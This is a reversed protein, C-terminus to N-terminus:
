LLYTNFFKYYLLAFEIKNAEIDKEASYIGFKAQEVQNSIINGTSFNVTATNYDIKANELVAILTENKEKLNLMSDYLSILADELDAEGDEIARSQANIENNFKIKDASSADSAYKSRNVTATTFLNRSIEINLDTEQAEKIYNNLNIEYLKSFDKELNVEVSKSSGDSINLLTDLARQQESVSSELNTLNVQNSKLNNQAKELEDKSSLGYEHRAELIEVGAEEIPITKELLAINLKTIEMNAVMNLITYEVSGTIIEENITHNTLGVNLDNVARKMSDYAEDKMDEMDDELDSILKNSYRRADSIASLNSNEIMAMEVAEELSIVEFKNNSSIGNITDTLYIYDNDTYIDITRYENNWIVEFGLLECVARLPIYVVGDIQMPAASITNYGYNVKATDSGISLRIEIDNRTISLEQMTESWYGSAGVMDVFERFEIFTQGESSIISIDSSQMITDVNVNMSAQSYAHVNTAFFSTSLIGSMLVCLMLNKKM